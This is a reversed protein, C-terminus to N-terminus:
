KRFYSIIYCKTIFFCSYSYNLWITKNTVHRGKINARHLIYTNNPQKIFIKGSPSVGNITNVASTFM